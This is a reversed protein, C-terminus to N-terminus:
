KICTIVKPVIFIDARGFTKGAQKLSHMASCCCLMMTQATVTIMFYRMLVSDGFM